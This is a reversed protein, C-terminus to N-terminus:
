KKLLHKLTKIDEKYTLKINPYSNSLIKIVAEKNYKKLLEINDIDCLTNNETSAKHAEFIENLEFCQPTFGYYFSKKNYAKTIIDGDVEFLLDVAPIGITAAGYISATNLIDKIIKKSLQPRAADHIIVYGGEQREKLFSVGKYASEQRTAGGEIIKIKNKQYKVESNMKKLHEKPVVIIINKIFSCKLFEELSYDLLSRKHIKLFQKFINGARKGNGGALIIASAENNLTKM